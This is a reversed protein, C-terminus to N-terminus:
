LYEEIKYKAMKEIIPVIYEDDMARARRICEEASTNFVKHEIEWRLDHWKIRDEAKLNTADLIVVNHGSAFLSVVMIKAISWVMPEAEIAFRQGHLAYRIQDPCVIPWAQTAAWTSKGSRPLGVTMILKKTM